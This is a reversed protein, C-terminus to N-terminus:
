RGIEKEFSRVREFIEVRDRHYRERHYEQYRKERDRGRSYAEERL